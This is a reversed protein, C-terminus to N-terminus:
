SRQGRDSWGGIRAAIETPIPGASAAAIPAATATPASAWYAATVGVSRQERLHNITARGLRSGAVAGILVRASEPTFAFQAGIFEPGVEAERM